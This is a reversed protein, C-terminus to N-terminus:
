RPLGFAPLGPCEFLIDQDACTVLKPFTPCVSRGTAVGSRRLEVGSDEPSSGRCAGEAHASADPDSARLTRAGHAPKGVVVASSARCQPPSKRSCAECPRRLCGGGRLGKDVLPGPWSRSVAANRRRTRRVTTRRAKEGDEEDKKGGDTDDDSGDDDNEHGDEDDAM